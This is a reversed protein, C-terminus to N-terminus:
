WAKPKDDAPYGAKKLIAKIDQDEYMSIRGTAALRSRCRYIGDQQTLLRYKLSGEKTPATQACYIEDVMLPLRARLQGVVNPGIIKKGGSDEDVSLDPHATIIVHCPLNLIQRLATEMMAQQLVYDNDGGRQGGTQPIGDVRGKKKVVLNLAAKGFMTLSDLYYTAFYDFYGSKRRENFHEEFLKLAKPDTPDENEFSNDVVIWGEQIGRRVSKTGGPDFSDIHIPRPCTLACTTKGTGVDGFIVSRFYKTNSSENYRKQIDAIEAKIDLPM